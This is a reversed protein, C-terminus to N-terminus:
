YSRAIAKGGASIKTPATNFQWVDSTTFFGVTGTGTGRSFRVYVEDRLYIWGTQTNNTGEWTVGDDQSWRFTGETLGGTTGTGLIEVRWTRPFDAGQFGQGYGEWNTELTSTLTGAIKTGPLIGSEGPGTQKNLIVKKTRFQEWKEDSRKKFYEFWPKDDESRVQSLMRPAVIRYLADWANWDRLAQDYYGDTGKTIPLRYGLTNLQQNIFNFSDWTRELESGDFYNEANEYYAFLEHPFIYPELTATGVISFKHGVIESRTGSANSFRWYEMIPGYAWGTTSGTKQYTGSGTHSASVAAIVTSGVSDVVTLSASANTVATGNVDTLNAEFIISDGTVVNIM